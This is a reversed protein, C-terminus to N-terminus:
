KSTEPVASGAGRPEFPISTVLLEPARLRWVRGWAGWWEFAGGNEELGWVKELLFILSFLQQARRVTKPM